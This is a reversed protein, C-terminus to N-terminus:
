YSRWPKQILVLNLYIHIIQDLLYVYDIHLRLTLLSKFYKPMTTVLTLISASLSLILLGTSLHLGTKFQHSCLSRESKPLINKDM